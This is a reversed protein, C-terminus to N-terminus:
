NLEHTYIVEKAKIARNDLYDYNVANHIIKGYNVLHQTNLLIYDQLNNLIPYDVSTKFNIKNLGRFEVLTNLDVELNTSTTFDLVEILETNMNFTCDELILLPKFVDETISKTVNVRYLRSSGGADWYFNHFRVYVNDKLTTNNTNGLSSILTLNSNVTKLVGSINVQRFENSQSGFQSSYVNLSGDIVSNNFFINVFSGTNLNCITTGVTSNIIDGIIYNRIGTYEHGNITSPSESAFILLSGSQTFNSNDILDIRAEVNRFKYTRFLWVTSTAVPQDRIVNIRRIDLKLDYYNTNSEWVIYRKENRHTFNIIDANINVKAVAYGNMDTAKIVKFISYRYEGNGLPNNMSTDDSCSIEKAKINFSNYINVQGNLGCILTGNPIYIGGDKFMINSLLKITPAELSFININLQKRIDNTLDLTYIASDLIVIQYQVTTYSFGSKVSNQETVIDTIVSQLDNYHNILSGLEPTHAISGSKVYAFNTAIVATDRYGIEGTTKYVLSKDFSSDLNADTPNIGGLNFGGFDVTFTSNDDRTFTALGNADVTGSVLRALNTNDLYPTLDIQSVSVGDKLLDVTNTGSIPSLTYEPIPQESTVNVEGTEDIVFRRNAEGEPQKADIFSDILDAYQQQTPKDGTEFFQKLTEKNQKM